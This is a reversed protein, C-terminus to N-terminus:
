PLISLFPIKDFHVPKALSKSFFESTPFCISTAFHGFQPCSTCACAVKQPCQPYWIFCGDMPICAASLATTDTTFCDTLLPVTFASDAGCFRDRICMQLPVGRGSGASGSAAPVAGPRIGRLPGCLQAAALGGPAPHYLLAPRHPSRVCLAQRKYVDEKLRLRIQM